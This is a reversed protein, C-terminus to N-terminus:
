IVTNTKAQFDSTGIINKINNKINKQLLCSCSQIKCTIVSNHKATPRQLGRTHPGPAADSSTEAIKAINLAAAMTGLRTFPGPYGPCQVILFM